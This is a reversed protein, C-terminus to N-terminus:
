LCNPSQFYPDGFVPQPSWYLLMGKKIVKTKPVIAKKTAKIKKAM